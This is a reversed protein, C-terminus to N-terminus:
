RKSKKMKCGDSANICKPNKVKADPRGMSQSMRGAQAESIMSGITVFSFAVFLTTAIIKM